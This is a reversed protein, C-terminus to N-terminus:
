VPRHIWMLAVAGALFLGWSAASFGLLALLLGYIAISEDLVWALIFSPFAQAPEPPAAPLVRGAGSGRRWFVHAAIATTAAVAGLAVPLIPIPLPEARRGIGSAALALYVLQSVLLAVWFVRLTRRLQARDVEAM